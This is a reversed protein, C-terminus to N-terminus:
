CTATPLISCDLSRRSICTQGVRKRVERLGQHVLRLLRTPPILGPHQAGQLEVLVPPVRRGGPYCTAVPASTNSATVLTV